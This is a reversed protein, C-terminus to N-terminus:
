FKLVSIYNLKAVFIFNLKSKWSLELTMHM